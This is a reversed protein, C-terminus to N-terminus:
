HPKKMWKYLGYRKHWGDITYQEQYKKFADDYLKATNKRRQQQILRKYLSMLRYRCVYSIGQDDM